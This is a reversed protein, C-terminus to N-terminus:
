MPTIGHEKYVEDQAQRFEPMTFEYGMTKVFAWNAAEDKSNDNLVRRFAEDERMRKIYAVASKVSMSIEKHKRWSRRRGDLVPQPSGCDNFPPRSCWNSRTGTRIRSSLSLIKATGSAERRDRCLSARRRSAIASLRIRRVEIAIHGFADGRVYPEERAWNFVLELAMQAFGEGYGLYAQSFQNKKHDRRELVRMGLLRTYFDVSRDIDSVRLMAHALRFNSADITVGPDEATKAALMKAAYAEALAAGVAKGVHLDSAEIGAGALKAQPAVGIKAVLLVRCDALMRCITDRADEDGRAHSAVDRREIMVAGDADIDFVLFEESQGFHKDIKTGDRSSVAIKLAGSAPETAAPARKSPTKSCSLTRRRGASYSGLQPLIAVTTGSPKAVAAKGRFGCRM